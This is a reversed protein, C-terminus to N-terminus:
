ETSISESSNVTRFNVFGGVISTMTDYREPINKFKSGMIGYKKMKGTNHESVVRERRLEKNYEKHAETLEEEKPKKHPIKVKLEPFDKKVGYYGMDFYNDIEQPVPPPQEKFLTYDHKKGEVSKSIHVIV